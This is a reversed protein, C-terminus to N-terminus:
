HGGQSRTTRYDPPVLFVGAVWAWCVPLAGPASAWRLFNQCPCTRPQNSQEAANEHPATVQGQQDRSRLVVRLSGLMIVIYLVRLATDVWGNPNVAVYALFQASLEMMPVM